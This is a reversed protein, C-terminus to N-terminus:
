QLGVPTMLVLLFFFFLSLVSHISQNKPLVLELGAVCPEVFRSIFWSIKEKYIQVLIVVLMPCETLVKFSHTSKPIKTSSTNKARGDSVGCSFIQLSFKNILVVYSRLIVQLAACPLTV